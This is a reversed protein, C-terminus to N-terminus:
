SEIAAVRDISRSVRCGHGHGNLGHTWRGSRRTTYRRWDAPAYSPSSPLSAARDVRERGLLKPYATPM